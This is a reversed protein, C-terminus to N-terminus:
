QKPKIAPSKTPQTHTNKPSPKKPKTNKQKQQNEKKNIKEIMEEIVRVASDVAMQVLTTISDESVPIEENFKVSDTNTEYSKMKYNQPITFISDPLMKEAAISVPFIGQKKNDTAEMEIGMGVNKGNTFFQLGQMRTYEEKVHYFLDDAYFISFPSREPKDTSRDAPKYASCHHGLVTVNKEAWPTLVHFDSKSDTINESSYTKTLRDLYYVVGKSFDILLDKNNGNISDIPSTKTLLKDKGFFVTIEEKGLFNGAYVIKGEFNQQAYLDTCILLAFFISFSKSISIYM